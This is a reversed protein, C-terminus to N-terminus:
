REMVERVSMLGRVHEPVEVTAYKRVAAPLGDADGATELLGEMQADDVDLVARLVFRNRPKVRRNSMGNTEDLQSPLPFRRQSIELVSVRFPVGWRRQLEAAGDLAQQLDFTGHIGTTQWCEGCADFGEPHGYRGSGDMWKQSRESWHDILYIRFDGDTRM